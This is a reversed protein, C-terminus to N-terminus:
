LEKGNDNEQEDICNLKNLWGKTGYEAIWGPHKDCEVRGLDWYGGNHAKIPNSRIHFHECDVCRM